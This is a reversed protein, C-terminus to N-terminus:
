HGYFGDKFFLSLLLVFVYAQIFAVGFEFLFVVFLFVLPILALLPQVNKLSLFFSMLIHLLSHGAMMNAFLRISLSFPRILFSIVEIVVILPTLWAPLGFPVFGKIFDLGKNKYAL